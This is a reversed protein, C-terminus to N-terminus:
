MSWDKKLWVFISTLIAGCLYLSLNVYITSPVNAGELIEMKRLMYTYICILKVIICWSYLIIKDKTETLCKLIEFHAVSFKNGTSSLWLPLTMMKYFVNPTPHSYFFSSHSFFFGENFSLLLACTWHVIQSTCPGIQSGRM